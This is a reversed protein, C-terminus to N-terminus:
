NFHGGHGIGKGIGGSRGRTWKKFFSALSFKTLPKTERHLNLKIPVLFSSTGGSEPVRNITAKNLVRYHKLPFLSRTRHVDYSNM